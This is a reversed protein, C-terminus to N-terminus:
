FATEYRAMRARREAEALGARAADCDSRRRGAECAAVAARAEDPRAAYDAPTREPAGCAAVTLVLAAFAPSKM